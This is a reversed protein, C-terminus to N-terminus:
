FSCCVACCLVACCLEAFRGYLTWCGARFVDGGTPQAGVGAAILMLALVLSSFLLVSGINKRLAIILYGFALCGWGCFYIISGCGLAIALWFTGFSGFVTGHFVDERYIEIVGAICLMVGGMVFCLPIMNGSVPGPYLFMLMMLCATFGLCILGLPGATGTHKRAMDTPSSVSPSLYASAQPVPALSVVWFLRNWGGWLCVHLSTTCQGVRWWVWIGFVTVTAHVIGAM